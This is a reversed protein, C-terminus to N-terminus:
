RGFRPRRGDQAISANGSHIIKDLLAPFTKNNIFVNVAACQAFLQVPCAERGLFDKGNADLEHICQDRRVAVVNGMPVQFGLVNHQHGVIIGAHTDLNEIKTQRFM